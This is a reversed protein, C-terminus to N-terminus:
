GRAHADDGFVGIQCHMPRTPQIALVCGRAVMQDDVVRRQDLEDGTTDTRTQGVADIRAVEHTGTHETQDVRDVSVVGLSGDLELGEGSGADATGDVVAKTLEVPHGSRDPAPCALDLLREGLELVFLTPDGGVFLQCRLQVDAVVFERTPEGGDRRGRDTREVSGDSGPVFGLGDLGFTHLVRNCRDFVAFQAVDHLRLDELEGLTLLQDDGQVVVLAQCEGLDAVHETDGLTPDRLDVGLRHQVEPRTHSGGADASRGSPGIPGWRPSPWRGNQSDLPGDM